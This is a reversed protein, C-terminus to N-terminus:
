HPLSDAAEQLAAPGTMASVRDVFGSLSGSAERLRTMQAYIPGASGPDQGYIGHFAFYAQNLKRIHYGHSEFFARRENMYTEAQEVEGAALLGDVQRRTTRMEAAFDFGDDTRSNQQLAASEAYSSYVISGIEDAIMGALTENMTIVGPDQAFGLCDLLYLFGLPRLALYQHAWEEVAAEVMSKMPLSPSVVAPYAAGFGGIKVVLASLGTERIGNELEEIEALDMAPQLLLRDSYLIRERPSVVLLLPPQEFRSRVPPVAAIGQQALAREIDADLTRTVTDTGSEVPSLSNRLEWAPVNLAYPAAARRIGPGTDGAGSPLCGAALIIFVFLVYLPGTCVFRCRFVRVLGKYGALRKFIGSYKGMSM